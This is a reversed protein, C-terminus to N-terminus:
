IKSNNSISKKKFYFFLFSFLLQLHIPIFIYKWTNDLNFFTKKLQVFRYLDSNIVIKVKKEFNYKESLSIANNLFIIVDYNNILNQNLKDLSPGTGLVLVKKNKLSNFLPNINKKPLIKIIPFSILSLFSNKSYSFILKFLRTLSM